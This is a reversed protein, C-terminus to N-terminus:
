GRLQQLPPAPSHPERCDAADDHAACRDHQVLDVRGRALRAAQGPLGARDAQSPEGAGAGDQHGSGQRCQAVTGRGGHRRGLPLVGASTRARRAPLRSRDRSADAGGNLGGSASEGGGANCVSVSRARHKAAVAVWGGAGRSLPRPRGARAASSRLSV